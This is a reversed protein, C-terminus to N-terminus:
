NGGGQITSRNKFREDLYILPNKVRTGGSLQGWGMGLHFDFNQLGYSAVLYEGGYLGTGGIDYVGVAIAPLIGEEKLRLKFNFGKDKYDSTFGEPRRGDISTYFFSAELWDFPSSTLTIKQDPQGDYFTIGYASEDLFRATPINTLGISGHNNFSNYKFSDSYITNPVLLSIVFIFFVKM